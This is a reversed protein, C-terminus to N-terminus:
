FFWVRKALCWAQDLPLFFRRITGNFEFIDDRGLMNYEKVLDDRLFIHVLKFHGQCYWVTNDDRLIGGKVWLGSAKAREQVEIALRGTQASTRDLKFEWGEENEGLFQMTRGVHPTLPIGLMFKVREYMFREFQDGVAVTDIGAPSDPYRDNPPSM